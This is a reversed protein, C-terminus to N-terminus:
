LKSQDVAFGRLVWLFVLALVAITIPASLLATGGDAVCRETFDLPYGVFKMGDAGLLAGRLLACVVAYHPALYVLMAAALTVWIRLLGRRINLKSLM